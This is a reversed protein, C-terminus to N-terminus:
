AGATSCIFAFYTSLASMAFAAILCPIRWAIGRKAVASLGGLVALTIMSLIVLTATDADLSWRPTGARPIMMMIFFGPVFAPM